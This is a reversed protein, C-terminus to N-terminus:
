VVIASNVAGKSLAIAQTPGSALREAIKEVERDFKGEPFVWNVLGLHLAVTADIPEWLMVVEMAKSLGLIRTLWFSNGSDPSLGGESFAEHLTEKKSSSMSR